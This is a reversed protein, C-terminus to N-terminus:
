GEGYPHGGSQSWPRNRVAWLGLDSPCERTLGGVGVVLGM